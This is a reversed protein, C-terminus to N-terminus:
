APSQSNKGAYLDNYAVALGPSVEDASRFVDVVRVKASEGTVVLTHPFILTNEGSIWHHVEIAGEVKIGKPVHVFLGNTVQSEHWAAYKASGLRNEQKMFHEQVLEGHAELAETLPLCVVGDPLNSESSVLTDNVFVYKAATKELGNSRVILADADSPEATAFGEFDLQKLNGFRWSEDRRTPIPLNEYRAKAAAQRDTFWQPLTSTPMIM